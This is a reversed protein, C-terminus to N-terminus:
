KGLADIYANANAEDVLQLSREADEALLRGMEIDQQPTFLNWAPQLNTRDALAPLVLISVFAAFLAARRLTKPM